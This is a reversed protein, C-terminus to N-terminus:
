IRATWSDRKGLRSQIMDSRVLAFAEPQRPQLEYLGKLNEPRLSAEKVEQSCESPAQGPRLCKLCSGDGYHAGMM